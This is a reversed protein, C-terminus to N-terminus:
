TRPNIEDVNAHVLNSAKKPLRREAFPECIQFIEAWMEPLNLQALYQHFQIAIKEGFATPWCSKAWCFLKTFNVGTITKLCGSLSPIVKIM